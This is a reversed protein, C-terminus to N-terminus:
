KRLTVLKERLHSDFRMKGGEGTTKTLPIYLTRQIRIALTEKRFKKLMDATLPLQNNTCNAATFVQSSLSDNDSLEVSIFDDGKLAPGSFSLSAGKAPAITEPVTIVLKDFNFSNTYTKGTIDTFKFEHIGTFQDVPMSFPYFAGEFKSSDVRTTKGDLSIGAPKDLILTTGDAGAFRFTAKAKIDADGEDYRISYEQYIKDQSVDKVDGIEENKCSVFFIAGLVLSSLFSCLKMNIMKLAKFYL